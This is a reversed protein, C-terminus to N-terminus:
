ELQALQQTTFTYSRGLRDYDKALERVQDIDSLNYQRGLLSVTEEPKTEEKVVEPSEPVEVTEPNTELEQNLSEEVNLEEM